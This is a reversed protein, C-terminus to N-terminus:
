SADQRYQGSRYSDQRLKGDITGKLLGISQLYLKEYNAIIDPEGKQFRIAEILAGNLLAMDFNDGLYTGGATVISTPYKAYIHEIEYNQDPTPALMLKVNSGSTSHYAYFKPLGYKASTNVPFADRLFNVDKNLLYNTTSSSIVAISYTYLYGDPTTYLKNTATLPGSDVNRMAPLEVTNFIKQEAQQTFMALQDDSFSTECIDNINTKLSTYNM